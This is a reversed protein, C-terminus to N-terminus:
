FQNVCENKQWKTMFAIVHKTRGVRGKELMSIFQKQKSISM